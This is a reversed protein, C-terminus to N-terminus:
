LVRPVTYARVPLKESAIVSKELATCSSGFLAAAKVLLARASRCILRLSAASASKLRAM